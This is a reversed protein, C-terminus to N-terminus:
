SVFEKSILVSISKYCLPHSILPVTFECFLPMLRLLYMYNPESHM